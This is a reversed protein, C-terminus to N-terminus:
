APERDPPSCPPEFITEFAGGHGVGEFAGSITPTERYSLGLEEATSKLIRSLTVGARRYLNARLTDPRPSPPL